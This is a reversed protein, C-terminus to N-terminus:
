RGWSYDLSKLFAGHKPSQQAARHSLSAVRIQVRTKPDNGTQLAPSNRINVTEKEQCVLSKPFRRMEPAPSSDLVAVGPAGAQTRPIKKCYHFTFSM